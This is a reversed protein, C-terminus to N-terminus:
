VVGKNELFSVITDIPIGQNFTPPTGEIFDPDGSHHLAVLKWNEDFCPSGSSGKETNTWYQVRTRDASISKIASTDLALKIPNGSPHQAIFLASKAKFVHPPDTSAPLKIFGRQEGAYAKNTFDGVPLDGASKDLQIVACDLENTKPDRNSPNNPSLAVRWDKALSFTSGESKLGNAFEKYDFRCIVDSANARAGKYSTDNDEKAVIGRMVHWNTMVRNPSILFGTGYISGGGEAEIEIRCVCIQIKGANELWQWFNLYSKTDVILRQLHDDDPAIAAGKTSALRVLTANRPRWEVAAAILEDERDQRALGAISDAFADKLTKLPSPSFFESIDNNIGLLLNSFESYSFAKFLADTWELRESPSLM